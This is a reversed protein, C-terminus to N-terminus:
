DEERDYGWEKGGKGTVGDEEVGDRRCWSGAGSVVFTIM